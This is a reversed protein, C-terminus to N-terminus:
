LGSLQMSKLNHIASRPHWPTEIGSNLKKQHSLGNVEAAAVLNPFRGRKKNEPIMPIIPHIMPCVACDYWRRKIERTMEPKADVGKADM